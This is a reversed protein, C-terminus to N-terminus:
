LNLSTDNTLKDGRYADSFKTQMLEPFPKDGTRRWAVVQVLAAKNDIPSRLVLKLSIQIPIRDIENLYICKFNDDALIAAM